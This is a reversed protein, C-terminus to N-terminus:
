LRNNCNLKAVKLGWYRCMPPTVCTWGGCLDIFRVVLLPLGKGGEGRGWGKDEGNDGTVGVPLYINNWQCTCPVGVLICVTSGHPHVHCEWQSARPVEM